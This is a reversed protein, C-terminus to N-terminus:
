AELEDERLFVLASTADEPRKKLKVRKVETGTVGAKNDEEQTLKSYDPKIFETMSIKEVVDLDKDLILSDCSILQGEAVEYTVVCYRYGESFDIQGGILKWVGAQMDEDSYPYNEFLSIQKQSAKLDGNFTYAFLMTYHPVSNREGEQMLFEMRGKSIVSYVVKNQRDVVLRSEWGYRVFPIVHIDASMMENQLRTNIFDGKLFPLGNNTVLQTGQRFATIDDELAGRICSVIKVRLDGPIKIFESNNGM